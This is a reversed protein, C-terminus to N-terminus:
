KTIPLHIYEMNLVSALRTREEGIASAVPQEIQMWMLATARDATKYGLTMKAINVQQEGLLTGVQGIVGPRNVHPVLLIHEHLHGHLHYDDVQLIKEEGDACDGAVQLKGRPTMLSLHLQAQAADGHQKLAVSLGKEEAWLRSNIRNIKEEGFGDAFGALTSAVIADSEAVTLAGSVEIELVQPLENLRQGMFAGLLHGFACWQNGEKYNTAHVCPLNTATDVQVGSLAAVVDQAMELQNALRAERTNAAEAVTVAGYPAVDKALAAQDQPLDMAFYELYEWDLGRVLEDWRFIQPDTLCILGAGKKLLQIEDKGVLARSLGEAEALLVVFDSRVFLDVLSTSECRYLAARGRNLHQDYCLLAMGFGQARKCIEAGVPPFGVFGLTKGSLEMAAGEKRARAIALIQQLAYDAVSAAEGHRPELILLGARTARARDLNSNDHGLCGLVQTKATETYLAEPLPAEGTVIVADACAADALSADVQVEAGSQTLHAMAEECLPSELLIRM